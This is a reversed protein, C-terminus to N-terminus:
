HKKANKSAKLIKKQLTKIKEAQEDMKKEILTLAKEEAVVGRAVISDVSPPFCFCCFFLRFVGFL